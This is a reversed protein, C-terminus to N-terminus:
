RPTAPTEFPRAGRTRMSSAFASPASLGSMNAVTNNLAAAVSRSTTRERRHYAPGRLKTNPGPPPRSRGTGTETPRRTPSLDLHEPRIFALRHDRGCGEQDRRLASQARREVL